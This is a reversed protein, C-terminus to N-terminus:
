PKSNSLYSDVKETPRIWLSTTWFKHQFEVKFYYTSNAKFNFSIPQDLVVGATVTHIKHLGPELQLYLPSSPTLTGRNIGDVIVPHTTYPYETYLVMNAMGDVPQARDEIPIKTVSACGNLFLAFVLVYIAIAKKRM